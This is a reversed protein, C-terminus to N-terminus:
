NLVTVVGRWFYQANVEDLAFSYSQSEAGEIDMWENGDESYQWRFSVEDDEFGQLEASLIVETGEEAEEVGDMNSTVIVKKEVTIEESTESDSEEETLIIAQVRSATGETVEESEEPEQTNEYVNEDSAKLRADRSYVGGGIVVVLALAAALIWTIRKKFM